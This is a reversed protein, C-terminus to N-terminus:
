REVDAIARSGASHHETGVDGIEARVVAAQGTPVGRVVLPAGAAAGADHDDFAGRDVRAVPRVLACGQGCLARVPPRCNGGGHLSVARQGNGGKVVRAPLSGRCVALRGEPRRRTDGLHVGALHRLPHLGIVDVCDDGTEHGTRSAGTSRSHVADLDIGTLVTENALEHRPQGVM